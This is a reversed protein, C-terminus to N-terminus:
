VLKVSKIIIGCVKENTLGKKFNKLFIKKSNQIMGISLVLIYMQEAHDLRCSEFRRCRPGLGLVRGFQAVGRFYDRAVAKINYCLYTEIDLM